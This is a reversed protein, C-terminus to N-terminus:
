NQTLELFLINKNTDLNKIFDQQSELFIFGYHIYGEIINELSDHHEHKLVRSIIGEVVREIEKESKLDELFLFYEKNFLTDNEDYSLFFYNYIEDEISNCSSDESRKFLIQKFIEIKNEVNM